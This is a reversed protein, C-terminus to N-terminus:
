RGGTDVLERVRDMGDGIVQRLQVAKPRSVQYAQMILEIDEDQEGKPVKGFRKKKRITHMLYDFQAVKPLWPRRSMEFAAFLTDPHVSLCRNVVYPVYASEHEVIVTRDKGDNINRLFDGLGPTESM